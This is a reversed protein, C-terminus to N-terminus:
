KPNVFKINGDSIKLVSGCYPCVEAQTTNAAACNPCTSYLTMPTNSLEGPNDKFYKYAEEQKFVSRLIVWYFLAYIALIFPLTILLEVNITTEAMEDIVSNLSYDLAHAVNEKAMGRWFYDILKDFTDDSLCEIADDGCYMDYHWDFFGDVYEGTFLIVMADEDYGIQYYLEESYTELNYYHDQWDLNDTIVTIPMGSKDYVKKLLVLTEKEEEPTLFDAKDQIYIRASDGSVKNGFTVASGMFALAMILFHITIFVLGIVAGSTWGSKTGFGSDSTYYNIRIGRRNIYSRDYCNRFPKRSTRTASGSHSGGRSSNRSSSHSHSHSSGGSRSGGGHRGM